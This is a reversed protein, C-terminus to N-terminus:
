IWRRRRPRPQHELRDPRPNDCGGSVSRPAVV